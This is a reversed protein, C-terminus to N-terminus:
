LELVILKHSPQQEGTRDTYNNANNPNPGEQERGRNYLGVGIVALCIGLGNMPTINNGFVIVSTIIIFLRKVTGLISFTVASLHNLVMFSVLNQCFYSLSSLVLLILVVQVSFGGGDMIQELGTGFKDWDCYIAAPTLLAMSTCSMYFSLSVSDLTPDENFIMKSVLSSIVNALTSILATILALSSVSVSLEAVSALSIGACIIGLSLYVTM